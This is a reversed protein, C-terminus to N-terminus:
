YSGTPRGTPQQGGQMQQSGQPHMGPPPPPQMNQMQQSGQQMGSQMNQQPNFQQGQMQNMGPQQRMMQQSGMNGQPQSSTGSPMLVPFGSQEMIQLQQQYMKKLGEMVEAVSKQAKLLTEKATQEQQQLQMELQKKQDPTLQNGGIQMMQMSQGSGSESIQQSFTIVNGKSDKLDSAKVWGTNGNRPDAVKVWSSNKPTFIPIIGTSLDITGTVKAQDRPADYLNISNALSLAPIFFITLMTVFLIMLRQMFQM